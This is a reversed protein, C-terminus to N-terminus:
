LISVHKKELMETLILKREYPVLTVTEFTLFDNDTTNAKIVTIINELRIGFDNEKYYGPEQSGFFNTHYTTNFASFLSFMITLLNM